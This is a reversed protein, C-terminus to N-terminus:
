LMWLGACIHLETPGGLASSARGSLMRHSDSWQSVTLEKEFRLSELSTELLESIAASM